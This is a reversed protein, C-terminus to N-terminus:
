PVDAIQVLFVAVGVHDECWKTKYEVGHIQIPMVMCAEVRRDYDAPVNVLRATYERTGYTTCQHSEPDSWLINLRLREHEERSEREEIARNHEEVESEWQARRAEKEKNERLIAENYKREHEEKETAWQARRAQKDQLERRIAETLNREHEERDRMWQERLHIREDDEVRWRYEIDIRKLAEEQHKRREIDWEERTRDRIDPSVSFTWVFIYSVLVAIVAIWICQNLLVSRRRSARGPVLPDTESSRCLKGDDM